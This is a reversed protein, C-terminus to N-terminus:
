CWAPRVGVLLIWHMQRSDLKWEKFNNRHTSEEAAERMGNDSPFLAGDMDVGPVM